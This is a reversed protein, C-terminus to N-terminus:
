RFRAHNPRFITRCHRRSFMISNSRFLGNEEPIHGTGSAASIAAIIPASIVYRRWRENPFLNSVLVEPKGWRIPEGITSDGLFLDVEKGNKLKGPFVYWGNETFPKPAFMKWGQNVQTVEAIRNLSKPLFRSGFKYDIIRVNWLFVYVLLLGVVTNLLIPRWARRGPAVDDNVAEPLETSWEKEALRASQATTVTAV